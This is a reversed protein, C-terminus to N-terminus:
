QAPSLCSLKTGGDGTHSNLLTKYFLQLENADWGSLQWSACATRRDVLNREFCSHIFSMRIGDQCRGARAPQIATSYPGKMRQLSMQIGVQCSVARAPAHPPASCPAPLPAPSASAAHGPHPAWPAAGPCSPGWPCRHACGRGGPRSRGRCGARQHTGRSSATGGGGRWCAPLCM